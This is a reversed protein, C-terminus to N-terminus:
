DDLKLEKSIAAAADLNTQRYDRLLATCQVDASAMASLVYRGAGAAIDLIRVPSGDAHTRDIAQRLLKELHIRRQRIGRWGLSNLYCYDILKGLPTIGRPQNAYVYDLTM